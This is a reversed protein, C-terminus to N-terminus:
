TNHGQRYADLFDAVALGLQQGDGERAIIVANEADDVEIFRYTGSFGRLGGLRFAGSEIRPLLAAFAADPDTPPAAPSAPAPPPQDPRPVQDNM